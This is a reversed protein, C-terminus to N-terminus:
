FFYRARFGAIAALEDDKGLLAPSKRETAQM